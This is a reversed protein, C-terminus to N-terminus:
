FSLDLRGNEFRLEAGEDEVSCQPNSSLEDKLDESVYLTGLHLTNPIFMWRQEGYREGVSDILAQDNELTLPIKGRILDGTTYVNLFTKKEDIEDRCRKTILDALGVGIANGKSEKALSLAGIIRINPTDLDEFGKVGRYGIVNTDMGTGSYTKGIAGVILVNLESVPLRPFYHRSRELLAPEQRLIEDPRLAHIEATQDLGDEIIAAAGLIKGSDVIMQGMEL